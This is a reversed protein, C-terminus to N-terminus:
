DEAAADGLQLYGAGHWRHLLALTAAGLRTGRALARTDALRRLAAADLGASPASEGNLYFRRRDFLLRSKLDLRLGRARAARAFAAAGLRRPADFELHRRPESLFEGICRDLDDDRWRIAGIMARLRQRMAAGIEARHAQRRLGRDTYLADGALHDQVYDFFRAALEGERPARMGLSWTLCEGVATGHHAYEPPLYLLDGAQMLWERQARFRRLVRIPAGDILTFDRQRGLQWRRTGAGQLLFVDYSDTHPGVGGGPAAYSVMVDDQRAYPVFGFASQLRRAAPVVTEIGNVLVTWCRAPLRAFDRRRFPGHRLQWQRGSGVILRSEVDDRCALDLLDDRGLADALAPVVGRAVLPKRQWHERLFRDITCAGLPSKPM